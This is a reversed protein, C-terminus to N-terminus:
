KCRVDIGIFQVAACFDKQLTRVVHVLVRDSVPLNLRKADVSYNLGGLKMNTKAVVNGVTFRGFKADFLTHALIHQTTIEYKGENLKIQEAVPM